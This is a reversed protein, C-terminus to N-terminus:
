SPLSHGQPQPPEVRWGMAILVSDAEYYDALLLSTLSRFAGAMEKEVTEIVAIRTAEDALAFVDEGGAKEAIAHLVALYADRDRTATSSLHEVLKATVGANTGTPLADDGPLLTDVVASLFEPKM